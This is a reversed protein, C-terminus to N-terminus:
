SRIHLEVVGVYELLNVSQHPQNSRGQVFGNAYYFLPQNEISSTNIHIISSYHEVTLTIIVYDLLDTM